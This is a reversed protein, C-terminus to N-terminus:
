ARGTIMILWFMGVLALAHVLGFREVNQDLKGLMRRVLLLSMAFAWAGLILLQSLGGAFGMGIITLSLGVSLLLTYAPDRGGTVHMAPLSYVGGMLIGVVPVGIVLTLLDLKKDPTQEM